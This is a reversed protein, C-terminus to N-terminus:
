LRQSLSSLCQFAFLRKGLSRTTYYACIHSIILGHPMCKMPNNFMGCKGVSGVKHHCIFLIGIIIIFCMCSGLCCLHFHVICAICGEM